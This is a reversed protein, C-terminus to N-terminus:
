AAPFKGRHTVTGAVPESCDFCYPTSVRVGKFEQPQVEEECVQHELGEKLSQRAVTRREKATLVLQALLSHRSFMRVAPVDFWPM